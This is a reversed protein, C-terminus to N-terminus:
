DLFKDKGKWNKCESEVWKYSDDNDNGTFVMSNGLVTRFFNDKSELAWEVIYKREWGHDVYHYTRYGWRDAGKEDEFEVLIGEAEFYEEAKQKFTEFLEKDSHAITYLYDGVRGYEDQDWGYGGLQFTYIGDSYEKINQLVEELNVTDAICIAHTSSSNTEFCGQRVQTKM